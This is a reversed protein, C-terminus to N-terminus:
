EARAASVLLRLFVRDSVTGPRSAMGFASRSVQGRVEITCRADRRPECHSPEVAFSVDRTIGRLTLVGALEGGAELLDLAFPASRFRIQPHAAAAFFEDSRVWGDHAPNPMRVSDAHLTADVRGQGRARDITISGGLREFRGALPLVKFLRVRFGAESNAADIRWTEPAPAEGPGTAAAAVGALLVAIAAAFRGTM